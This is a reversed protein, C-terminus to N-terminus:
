VIGESCTQKLVEFLQGTEACLGGVSSGSGFFSNLIKKEGGFNLLPCLVSFAGRMKRLVSTYM